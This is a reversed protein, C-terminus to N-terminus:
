PRRRTVAGRREFKLRATGVHFAAGVHFAVRVNFAAVPSRAAVAPSRNCAYIGSLPKKEKEKSNWKIKKYHM